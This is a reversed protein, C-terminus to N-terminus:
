QLATKDNTHNIYFKYIGLAITVISYLVFFDLKGFHAGLTSVVLGIIVEM